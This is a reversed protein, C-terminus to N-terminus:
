KIEHSQEMLRQIDNSFFDFLPSGVEVKIAPVVSYGESNTFFRVWVAQDTLIFSYRLIRGHKLIKILKSGGFESIILENLNKTQEYIDSKGSNSNRLYKAAESNENVHFLITEKNNAIRNKIIDAHDDIFRNSYHAGVFLSSTAKWINEEDIKKSNDLCDRIGNKHIRDTGLAAESIEQIIEKRVNEDFIWQLTGVVLLLAGINVVLSDIDIKLFACDFGNGTLILILGAVILLLKSNSSIVDLKNRM